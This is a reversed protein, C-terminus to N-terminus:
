RENLISEIIFSRQVLPQRSAKLRLKAPPILLSPCHATSSPSLPCKFQVTTPTSPSFPLETGATRQQRTSTKLTKCNTSRKKKNIDSFIPIKACNKLRFSFIM